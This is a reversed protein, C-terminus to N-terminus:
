FDFKSEIIKKVEEDNGNYKKIGLVDLSAMIIKSLSVGLFYIENNENNNLFSVFEPYRLKNKTGYIVANLQLIPMSSTAGYMIADSNKDKMMEIIQAISKSKMM